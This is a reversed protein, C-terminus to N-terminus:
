TQPVIASYHAGTQEAVESRGVGSCDFCKMRIAEPRCPSSGMEQLEVKTTGQHSPYKSRLAHGPSSV